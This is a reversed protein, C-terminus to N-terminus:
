LLPLANTRSGNCLRASKKKCKPGSSILNAFPTHTHITFHSRSPPPISFITIPVVVHDAVMTVFAVVVVIYTNLLFNQLYLTRAAYQLVPM